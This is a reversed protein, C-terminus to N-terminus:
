LNDIPVPVIADAPEFGFVRGYFYLEAELARRINEARRFGHQEDEFLLFAVPLGKARVAEYMARAQNPPVVKDETGQFLIMASALQHAFHVPSRARYLDAREPYPGVLTDLYRSEFKHTDRALAELDGVGYHSAGAHFCRRFALAALATYGGASAGRIALRRADVAGSAVLHRAANVMDDVDVVGWQGALRQRYARGYGSGGGYNVDAVAFGRSTWFQVAWKFAGSTAATPGGHGLVLLPPREGPPARFASNKPPYFFAHAQLGGETDFRIAQAGSVWAADVVASGASRLTECSRTALDLRVIAEPAAASGGNFVVFGDGVQVDRLARFPTAIEDLTGREADLLGLRWEGGECCACVIRGGPEFGYTSLGFQWQPVGFEAARPHLAQVAGARLRYLNWWGSRDSVFHLEGQPSWAPQFVSEAPGGAVCQAPGLTGDQLLEARWLQSGDWPMRPHDWTLWALQRGDRSLCPSAYFDHGTALVQQWGSALDVGVLTNVPLRGRTHDERVAVLRGRPRDILADAFRMGLDRTLRRPGAAGDVRYFQQDGHHTFVAGERDVTFAGGGYEHVGNRVNFPAPSLEDLRGDARRCVLVQRGQEAPRGELWFIEAGAVRVQGLQLTAGTILASTVPSTWSGCPAISEISM